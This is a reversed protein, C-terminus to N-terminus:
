IVVNAVTWPQVICEGSESYFSQSCTFKDDGVHRDLWNTYNSMRTYVDPFGVQCGQGSGFSVIAIEVPLGCMMQSMASGSDGYCTAQRQTGPLSGFACINESTTFPYYEKCVKQSTTRFDAYELDPPLYQNTDNTVGHGAVRVSTNAPTDGHDCYLAIPQILDTLEVPKRWRVLGIDHRLTELSFGEHIWYEDVDRRVLDKTDSNAYYALYVILDNIYGTLCHAATVVHKKGIIAGGCFSSVEYREGEYIQEQLAVVQAYFPFEGETANEGDIIRSIIKSRTLSKAGSQGAFAVLVLVSFYLKTTLMKTLRVDFRYGGVIFHFQQHKNRTNRKYEAYYYHRM